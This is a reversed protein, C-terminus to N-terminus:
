TINYQYSLGSKDFYGRLAEMELHRYHSYRAERQIELFLGQATYTRRRSDSRLDDIPEELIIYKSAVRIMESLAATWNEIHHLSERELVTDFHCDPFSLCTADMCRYIINPKPNEKKAREIISASIDVAM